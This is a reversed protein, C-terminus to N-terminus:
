FRERKSKPSIARNKKHPNRRPEDDPHCVELSVIPTGSLDDTRRQRTAPTGTGGGAGTTSGTSGASGPSHPQTPASSPVPASTGSGASDLLGAAGVGDGEVVEAELVLPEDGAFGRAARSEARSGGALDEFVIEWPQKPGVSVEVATKAALGSRDLADRIAALRVAPPTGEDAAIGLLEKAMRDAAREIRVRAAAKVQPASGGHMRCVTTGHMPPNNCPDGTRRSRASCSPRDPNRNYHRAIRDTSVTESEIEAKRNTTM